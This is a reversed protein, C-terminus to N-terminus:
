LTRMLLFERQSHITIQSASSPVTSGVAWIYDPSNKSPIFATPIAFTFSLKAWSPVPAPSPASVLNAIQKSSTEPLSHGKGDLTAINMKDNTTKWGVIITSGAMQSGFGIAAWGPFSSPVTYIVTATSNDSSPASGTLSSSINTFSLVATVCLEQASSCTAKMTSSSVLVAALLPSLFTTLKM